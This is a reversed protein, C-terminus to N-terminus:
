CWEILKCDFYIVPFETCGGIEEANKDEEDRALIWVDSKHRIVLGEFIVKGGMFNTTGDQLVKIRNDKIEVNCTSNEMRGGFEAFYMEYNFTGQPITEKEQSFSDVTFLLCVIIVTKIM